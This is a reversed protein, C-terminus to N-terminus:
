QKESAFIVLVIGYSDTVVVAIAASVEGNTIFRKAICACSRAFVSVCVFLCASM